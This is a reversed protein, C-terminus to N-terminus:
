SSPYGDFREFLFVGSNRPTKGLDTLEPERPRKIGGSAQPLEDALRVINSRMPESSSAPLVDNETEKSVERGRATM